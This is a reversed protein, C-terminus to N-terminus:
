NEIGLLAMGDAIKREATDLCRTALESNHAGEANEVYDFDFFWQAERYLKRIANLEDETKAGPAGEEAAKVADALGDKFASLKNGIETERATIRDQLKHVMEVMDTDGHCQVCTSLLTDDKLPSDIFHSHYVTGDEEQVIPMHCDACSMGMAAHKGSLYTEMEPHQAKLMHAGTSPQIWDYFGLEGDKNQISDYYALIAEPTMAEMSDYPMMTEADAVTFYYEIHCQGCSLTSPSISEANAGLAKNVYSHTITIQGENGADNGHCTYCSVSEEMREMAEDFTYKYAQVGDDNVLKAFNPTKCTLCNAMPHPRETKGVDTLCFEHGRASGYDRAFGYGEYLNVLYPDQTLYDVVKDNEANAKMSKAIYPFVSEWDAANVTGDKSSAAPAEVTLYQIDSRTLPGLEGRNGLHYTTNGNLVGSLLLVAAAIILLSCVVKWIITKKDMKDGKQGSATRGTPLTAATTIVKAPCKEACKGCQVCNEYKVHALNGEVSIADHECQRVCLSCGICGASCVKKVQPGKDRNSCQVAVQKNEPVLEILGKPCAKACLGCGVCRSRNVVAVGDRVTIANEPCVKVCSGLGVCGYDCDTLALGARVASACDAIGVYNGQNSTFECSGKCKIFAIRRTVDGAETGMISGIKRAVTSGGVPCGNAPAEGKAIAAAMADCGAYGCAGCNNGPLVERVAAERADVEVYFKKGMFVLGAGVIIGIVTIVATTILILDM